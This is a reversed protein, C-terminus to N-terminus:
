TKYEIKVWETEAVGSATLKFRLDAGTNIFSYETGITVSEWNSGGDASLQATLNTDDELTITAKTVTSSDLYCSLSLGIQGNTFSIKQNATDWTATGSSDELLDFGFREIFENNPNVVRMFVTSTNGGLAGTGLIGFISHGLIFSGGSSVGYKSTGYIGFNSSGYIASGAINVHKIVTPGEELIMNERFITIEPYDSSPSGIEDRTKQNGIGTSEFGM